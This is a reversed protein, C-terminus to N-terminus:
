APLVGSAEHGVAALEGSQDLLVGAVRQNGGPAKGREVRLNSFNRELIYSPFHASTSPFLSLGTSSFSSVAALNFSIGTNTTVAESLASHACVPNTNTSFSNNSNNMM